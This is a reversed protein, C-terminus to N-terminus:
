QLPKLYHMAVIIADLWDAVVESQVPDISYEVYKLVNWTVVAMPFGNTIHEYDSLETNLENDTDETGMLLLM